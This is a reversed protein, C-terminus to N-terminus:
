RVRSYYIWFVLMFPARYRHINVRTICITVRRSGVRTIELAAINQTYSTLVTSTGVVAAILSGFGEM